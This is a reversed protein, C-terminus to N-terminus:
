KCWCSMVCCPYLKLIRVAQVSQWLSHSGQSKMGRYIAMLVFNCNGLPLLMCYEGPKSPLSKTYMYWESCKCMHSIWQLLHIFMVCLLFLQLKLVFVGWLNWLDIFMVYYLGGRNSFSCIKVSEVAFNCCFM